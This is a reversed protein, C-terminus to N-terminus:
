PLLRYTLIFDLVPDRGAFFDAASLEIVFDPELTPPAAPDEDIINWESSIHVQIKSNPLTIGRSGGGMVRGGGMPEGVFIANTSEALRLAFWSAASYTDRGIIVFLNGPQNIEPTDRLVREIPASAQIEGGPNHRLDVVVRKPQREVATERVEESFASISQNESVSRVFNYQIYLTDSDELYVMWFFKDLRHSLYLPEERQPLGSFFTIEDFAPSIGSPPQAPYVWERYEAVPIPALNLISRNGAEDELVFGPANVDTIIGLAHLEEALIMRIPAIALASMDNDSSITPEILKYAEDVTFAGISVVKKGVSDQHPERAEIIRLGDSFWYLRLPYLHYDLGDQLPTIFTHGDRLMATLQMFGFVIQHDTLSPIRADLDAVAARFQEEPTIRFPERHNNILADALSQLDERWLNSANAINVTTPAATPIATPVTTATESLSPKAECGAFLLVTLICFLHINPRFQRRNKKTPTSM